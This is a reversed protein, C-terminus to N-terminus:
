FAHKYPIITINLDQPGDRFYRGFHLVTKVLQFAWNISCLYTHVIVLLSGELKLSFFRWNISYVLPTLVSYSFAFILVSVLRSLKVVAQTVAILLHSIYMPSKDTEMSCPGKCSAWSILFIEAKWSALNMVANVLILYQICDWALQIWHV